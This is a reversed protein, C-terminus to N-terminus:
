APKSIMEWLTIEIPESCLEGAQAKLKVLYPMELHEELIKKSVWNEYLILDGKDDALQHLDYNICGAEARTPAVCAMIAQKLEEEKGKKAKFRALVTVKKDAM